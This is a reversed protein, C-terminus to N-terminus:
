VGECWQERRSAQYLEDAAAFECELWEVDGSNRNKRLRTMAHDRKQKLEQTKQSVRRSKLRRQENDGGNWYEYLADLLTKMGHATTYNQYQILKMIFFKHAGTDSKLYRGFAKRTYQHAEQYPGDQDRDLQAAKRFYKQEALAKSQAIVKAQHYKLVYTNAKGKGAGKCTQMEKAANLLLERHERAEESM